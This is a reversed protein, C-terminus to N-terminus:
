RSFRHLNEEDVEETDLPCHRGTKGPEGDRLQPCSHWSCEGDSAGHCRPTLGTGECYTCSLYLTKLPRVMTMAHPRTPVVKKGRCKPCVVAM